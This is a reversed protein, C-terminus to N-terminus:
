ISVISLTSHRRLVPKMRPAPAGALLLGHMSSAEGKIPCTGLDGLSIEQSAGLM